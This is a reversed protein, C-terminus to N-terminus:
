EKEFATIYFIYIYIKEEKNESNLNSPCSLLLNAFTVHTDLLLPLAGSPPSGETATGMTPPLQSPHSAKTM